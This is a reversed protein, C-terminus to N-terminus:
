FRLGNASVPNESGSGKLELTHKSALKFKWGLSEAIKVRMQEPTM